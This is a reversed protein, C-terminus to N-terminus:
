HFYSLSNVRPFQSANGELQWQHLIEWDNVDHIVIIRELINISRISFNCLTVTLYLSVQQCVLFVHTYTNTIKRGAEANLSWVRRSNRMCWVHVGSVIGLWVDFNGLVSRRCVFHSVVGSRVLSHRPIYTYKVMRLNKM